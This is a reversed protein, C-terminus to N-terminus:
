SLKSNLLLRSIKETILVDVDIFNGWPMKLNVGLFNLYLLVKKCFLIHIIENSHIKGMVTMRFSLLPHIFPHNSSKVCLSFLNANNNYCYYNNTVRTLVVIIILLLVCGTRSLIQRGLGKVSHLIIHCLRACM